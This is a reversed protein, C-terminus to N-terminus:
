LSDNKLVEEDLVLTVKFGEKWKSELIMQYHTGYFGRLREHVNKLGISDQLETTAALENRLTQLRKEEVGKGNDQVQIYLKYDKLYAKISIANDHRQYDIGHVFYNEVLPQISFKPIVLQKIAEDIVVHYAIKDPYRMQYLYVYKECFELEQLLTTTKEQTTNNRLLASFAYVVDALEEQRRSLAYMRIYELTNYLFHPNIQSQLAKMHADRQKIELMYIDEIYTNISIIMQNIAEAIDKLEQQVQSTDIQQKFNGGSVQKTAEVIKEVQQTYRKFTRQLIALLLLIILSGCLFIIGILSLIRRWIVQKNLLVLTTMDDRNTLEKSYFKQALFASLEDSNQGLKNNLMELESTGMTTNKFLLQNNKYYIFSEIGQVANEKATSGLITSQDFIVFVQGLSQTYDNPNFLSRVLYFQDKLDIQSGIIKKGYPHKHDAKVYSNSEQLLIIIEKIETRNNMLRNFINAVSVNEGTKRYIDNTYEFYDSAELQLYNRLSQFQSESSTFEGVIDSMISNKEYIYSDLQLSTSDMLLMSSRFREAGTYVSMALMILVSILILLLSYAQMLQNILFDKKRFHPLKVKM